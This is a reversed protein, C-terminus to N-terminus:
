INKNVKRPASPYCKINELTQIINGRIKVNCIDIQCRRKCAAEKLRLILDFVGYSESIQVVKILSLKPKGGTIKYNEENIKDTAFAALEQAVDDEPKLEVSLVANNCLAIFVICVVLLKFSM